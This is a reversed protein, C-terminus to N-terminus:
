WGTRTASELADALRATFRRSQGLADALEAESAGDVWDSLERDLGGARESLDVCRALYRTATGTATTGASLAEATPLLAASREAVRRCLLAAAILTGHPPMDHGNPQAPVISPRNRPSLERLDAVILGVVDLCQPRVSALPWGPAAVHVAPLRVATWASAQRRLWAAYNSRSDTAMPDALRATIRLWDDHTLEAVLEPLGLRDLRLRLAADVAADVATDGMTDVMGSIPADITDPSGTMAGSRRSARVRRATVGLVVGEASGRGESETIMSKVTIMSMATIM